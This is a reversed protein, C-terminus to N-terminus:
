VRKESVPATELQPAKAWLETLRAAMRFVSKTIRDSRLNGGRREGNDQEGAGHVLPIKQCVRSPSRTTHCRSRRCAPKRFGLPHQPKQGTRDRSLAPPTQDAAPSPCAVAAHAVALYTTGVM